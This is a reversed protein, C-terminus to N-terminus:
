SPASSTCLITTARRMRRSNSPPPAQRKVYRERALADPELRQSSLVLVSQPRDRLVLPNPRQLAYAAVLAALAKAVPPVGDVEPERMEEVVREHPV